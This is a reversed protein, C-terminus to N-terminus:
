CATPPAVLEVKKGSTIKASGILRWSDLKRSISIRSGIEACIPDRLVLIMDDGDVELAKSITTSSGSTIRLQEGAKIPRVRKTTEEGKVGLVNPLLRTRVRLRSFIDPLTGPTGILHGALRDRKTLTPDILTGVAVLGGPVAQELRSDDACISAVRTTIPSCQIAGERTKIILGPRVEVADGPRLTGRELVGGAVGGKLSSLPAGPKNVDFSRCIRLRASSAPDRARLVSPVIRECIFRLVVDINVPNSPVCIAPIVPTGPLAKAISAHQSKAQEPTVLDIKSQVVATVAPSSSCSLLQLAAVHEATQPRPFPENAAVVLIAADMVSAGSMMTSMLQEHGPVDVFSVNAALETEGSVACNECPDAVVSQYHNCHHCRYIKASAYGLAITCNRKREDSHRQTAIGTICEVLSSKGHAVHGATGITITPQTTSM